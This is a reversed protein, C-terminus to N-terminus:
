NATYVYISSTRTRASAILSWCLLVPSNMRALRQYETTHNCYIKSRMETRTVEIDKGEFFNHKCFYYCQVLLYETDDRVSLLM